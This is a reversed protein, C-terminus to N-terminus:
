EASAACSDPQKIFNHRPMLNHILLFEEPNAAHNDAEMRIEEDARKTTLEGSPGGAVWLGGRVGGLVRVSNAFYVRSLRPFDVVCVWNM